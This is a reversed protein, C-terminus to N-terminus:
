TKPHEGLGCCVECPYEDGKGTGQCEKCMVLNEGQWEEALEIRKLLDDKERRLRDREEIVERVCTLLTKGNTDTGGEEIAEEIERFRDQYHGGHWSDCNCVPNDCRRYGCRELFFLARDGAEAREALRNREKTVGDLKTRLETMLKNWHDLNEVTSRCASDNVVELRDIYKHLPAYAEAISEVANRGIRRVIRAAVEPQIDEKLVIAKAFGAIARAARESYEARETM